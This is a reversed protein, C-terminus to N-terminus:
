LDRTFSADVTGTKNIKVNDFLWEVPRKGYLKLCDNVEKEQEAIHIHIPINEPCYNFVEKISNM